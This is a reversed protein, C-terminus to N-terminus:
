FLCLMVKVYQKVIANYYVAKCFVVTVLYCHLSGSEVELGHWSLNNDYEYQTDLSSWGGVPKRPGPCSSLFLTRFFM